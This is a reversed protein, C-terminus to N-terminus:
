DANSDLSPYAQETEAEERAKEQHHLDQSFAPLFVFLTLVLVFSCFLHLASPFILLLVSLSVFRCCNRRRLFRAIFSWFFSAFLDRIQQPFFICYWKPKIGRSIFSASSPLPSHPPVRIHMFGTTPSNVFMPKKHNYERCAAHGLRAQGLRANTPMVSPVTAQRVLEGM